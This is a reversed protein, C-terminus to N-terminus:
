TSIVKMKMSSVMYNLPVLKLRYPSKNHPRIGQSAVLCLAVAVCLVLWPPGILDIFDFIMDGITDEDDDGGGSRTEARSQSSGLSASM